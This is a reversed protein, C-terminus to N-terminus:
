RVVEQTSSSTRGFVEPEYMSEVVAAPAHFKGPTTAQILYSWHHEGKEMYDAFVQIRDDYREARQFSGWEHNRGVERADERGEVAFSTDVIEWGAPLPDELAVFTRDQKTKVTLTVVARKGARLDGRLPEVVRTLEYGEMAPKDFSAPAYALVLDYYLRGIGEKALALKMSDKGALVEDLPMSRRRASLTRGEFRESWLSSADGERSLSATFSPVEKEYRRYFDQLARLSDANEITTRWRGSKREEVLWRVAKEDGPFGGRAELFAQLAVATTRADSGHIWWFREGQPDEFHIGRAEVRAQGLLEDALAKTETEGAAGPAAKLLYAKALYPIQDRREYLKRFYAPQPDGYLGLAYVAYARSAYDESAAYPYAWDLKDSGLYTKLWAAAKRLSDDQLTYGEKKALAATELAYATLWPDPQWPNPWYGYGGSPHQFDPMRDLEKQAVQKLNGVTGLGFEAVLDAGVVVPVVRSLRQELCGYPYELLYRAGERLGALATPSFSAELMGGPSANTPRAIMEITKSSTVGSTAAREFRETARVPVTWRLGDSEAGSKAAFRFEASGLGTARCKWTTEVARGAPVFLERTSAGEVSISTGELALAVTVTSDAKTFNHVVVGGEFEDGVRALRPLSPRISLPKSVTARAEGSGFRRTEHAVAMLRFRTLSDPLKFSATAVGGPGTRLTPGWFATPSFNARLDVGPLPSGRGGGGGRNKGKEGFSRQGLVFARSDASGVLLPRPGYFEEFPDPTRYGTLNLVGEDVVFLTVEADSPKGDAGTVKVTAGLEGGPRYESKDSVIAVTLRRGGPDVSLAKYGFKAQPKGLDQGDEDFGQKAARGKVLTVSVFANPVMRDDLPVRVLSAGGNLTQTWRTIIGEREVTVLATAHEFPSKVLLRATEGPKYNEKDAVIEVADDDKRKWWAEGSGAVNFERVTEAPRGKEDKGAVSFEYEGPKDATFSWTWTSPSAAFTGSSVATEREESVWELRGAVGAREVSLWERRHLSWAGGLTEVRKGDPRVAVVAAEWKEGKEVFNTDSKVGYYLDARHVIGSARAFLRQREPDIVSAEFSAQLPGLADGPDLVATAKARGQGDLATEGSALLRGTEASRKRWAPNFSFDPWGPPQYGSPELRLSWSAKEGAMPAGFLWWGEVGAEYTDGALWSASAPVAKVEFAAPKFAEVRFTRSANLRTESNTAVYEEGEEGEGEDAVPRVLDEDKAGPERLHVTWHGTPAGERVVFSRDLSSLDSVTVTTKLVEAGRADTVSFVLTRPDSPGLPRWDGGELKRVIAKAHVTEGARYVGRETFLSVRYNQPRPAWDSAIEFRWPEVGGRWDLSLVATGKPDKVFAWLNPRAWRKWETIGLAKWGPADALGDRGTKGTWLVKNDDDRLEVPVGAAPTATKLYTAWVLTSDPSTKFHVGVRTVDLVAKQFCANPGVVEVAALGGARPPTATAFVPGLDVFTRLSRNRPLGLNWLKSPADFALPKQCGWEIGRYFPIFADDAIVGKRLPATAVNVAAVPQRAPLGQELVAFQQPMNLRPCIGDNSFPLRVEAGLEQGFADRLGSSILLAYDHDPQLGPDPFEFDVTRLEPHRAGLFERGNENVAFSRTSGEIRTHAIVDSMAVPDTFVLDYGRPLCQRGPGATVRFTYPGEFRVARESSLGLAGDAAKLEAGLFLRYGRDRQLPRSPKVALVTMTSPINEGWSWPWAAKVEEPTARRVGVAIVEGPGHDDLKTERLVISDRARRPDMPLDFHLFLIADPAIWRDGDSPRSDVLQPRRTEFTWAYSKDLARGSVASRTGAPIEAKFSAAVPFPKEPEFALVQTGRWRCRGPLSPTLKLPCARGMDAPSALAVMPQDFAVVVADPAAGPQAPGAPAASLVSLVPAEASAPAPVVLLFSFLANLM